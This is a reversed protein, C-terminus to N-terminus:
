EAPKTRGRNGPYHSNTLCAREVGDMFDASAVLGDFEMYPDEDLVVEMGGKGEAELKELAQRLETVTM